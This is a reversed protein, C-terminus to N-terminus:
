ASCTRGQSKRVQQSPPSPPTSPLPVQGGRLCKEAPLSTPGGVGPRPRCVRAAPLWGQYFFFMGSSLNVDTAWDERHPHHPFARLSFTVEFTVSRQTGCWGREWVGQKAGKNRLSERPALKLLAGVVRLVPSKQIQTGFPAPGPLEGQHQTVTRFEPTQEPALCPHMRQCTCAAGCREM